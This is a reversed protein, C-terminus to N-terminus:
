NKKLDPLGVNSPSAPKAGYKQKFAVWAAKMAPDTTSQGFKDWKEIFADISTSSKKAMDLWGTHFVELTPADISKKPPPPPLSPETLRKPPGIFSRSARHQLTKAVEFAEKPDSAAEVPIGARLLADKPYSGGEHPTVVGAITDKNFPLKGYGKMEAYDSPLAKFESIFRIADADGTKALRILQPLIAVSPTEAASDRSQLFKWARREWEGAQVAPNIDGDPPVLLGAGYPSDEFHKFSQFRPSTYLLQQHLSSAKSLIPTDKYNPARWRAHTAHHFPQKAQSFDLPTKVSQGEQWVGQHPWNQGFQDQLRRRVAAILATTTEDPTSYRKQTAIDKLLADGRSGLADTYLPTYFDRNKLVTNAVKPDFVGIKPIVFTEGFGTFLKDRTVAFSPMYLEPIVRKEAPSGTPSNKSILSGLNTTGHALMLQPDGKVTIAGRQSEPLPTRNPSGKPLHPLAAPLFAGGIRGASYAGTGPDALPTSKAWWDSTGPSGSLLTPLQDPSLLGLKHGLYGGGALGLNLATEALDVPGGVLDATLSRALGKLFDLQPKGAKEAM